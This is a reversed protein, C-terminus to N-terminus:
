VANHRHILGMRTTTIKANKKALAKEAKKDNRVSIRDRQIKDELTETSVSVSWAAKDWGDEGKATIPQEGRKYSSVKVVGTSTVGKDNRWGEQCNGDKIVRRDDRQDVQGFRRRDPKTAVPGELRPIYESRYNYEYEPISMFRSNTAKMCPDPFRVEGPKDGKLTCQNLLRM